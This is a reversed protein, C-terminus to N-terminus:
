RRAPAQGGLDPEAKQHILFHLAKGRHPPLHGRSACGSSPRTQRQRVTFPSAPCVRGEDTRKASLKERPLLWKLIEEPPVVGPGYPEQAPPVIVEQTTEAPDDENYQEDPVESLDTWLEEREEEAGHPGFEDFM